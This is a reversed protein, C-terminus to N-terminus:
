SLGVKRIVGDAGKDLLEVARAALQADAKQLFRSPAINRRRSGYNIIGAYRVGFTVASRGPSTSPRASGALRGSRKPAFSSTLRAHERAIDAMVDPMDALGDALRKLATEVETLGEVRVSTM